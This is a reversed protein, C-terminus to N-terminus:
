YTTVKGIIILIENFEKKSKSQPVSTSFGRGRAFKGPEPLFFTFFTFSKDPEDVNKKLIHHATLNEPKGSTSNFDVVAAILCIILLVTFVATSVPAKHLARM